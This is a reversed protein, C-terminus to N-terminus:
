TDGLVLWVACSVDGSLLATHQTRERRRRTVQNQACFAWYQGISSDM